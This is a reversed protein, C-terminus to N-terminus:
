SYLMIAEKDCPRSTLHDMSTHCHMCGIGYGEGDRGMGGAGLSFSETADKESCTVPFLGVALCCTFYSM